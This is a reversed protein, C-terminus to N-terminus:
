FDPEWIIQYSFDIYNHVYYGNLSTINFLHRLGENECSKPIPYATKERRTARVHNSTREIGRIRSFTKCVWLM